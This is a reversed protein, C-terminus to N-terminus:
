LDKVIGEINIDNEIMRKLLTNEYKVMLLVQRAEDEPIKIGNEKLHKELKKRRIVLQMYEARLRDKYNDSLMLDITDKLEM